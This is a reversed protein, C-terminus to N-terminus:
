SKLSRCEMERRYSHSAVKEVLVEFCEEPISKFKMCIDTNPALTFTPSDVIHVSGTTIERRTTKALLNVLCV